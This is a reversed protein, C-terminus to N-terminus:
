NLSNSFMNDQARANAPTQRCSLNLKNSDFRVLLYSVKM